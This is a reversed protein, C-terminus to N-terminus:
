FPHGIGVDAVTLWTSHNPRRIRWDFARSDAAVLDELEARTKDVERAEAPLWLIWREAPDPEQHAQLPV